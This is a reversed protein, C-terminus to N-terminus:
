KAVQVSLRLPKSKQKTNDFIVAYYYKGTPLETKDFYRALETTEVLTEKTPQFNPKDSRHIEAFLGWTHANLPWRIEVEGSPIQKATIEPLPQPIRVPFINRHRGAIAVLEGGPQDLRPNALTAASGEQIIALMKQYHPNKTDAFSIAPEGSEPGKDWKQWKHAPYRDLPQVAHEYGRTFIRLRKFEGVKADRCLAQGLGGKGKALPARLIRSFEPNELNFWDPEFRGGKGTNHCKVCGAANM